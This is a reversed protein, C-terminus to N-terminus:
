HVLTLFLLAPKHYRLRASVQKVTDATLFEGVGLDLRNCRAIRGYQGQGLSVGLQLPEDQELLVM